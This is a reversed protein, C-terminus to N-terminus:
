VSDACSTGASFDTHSTMWTVAAIMAEPMKVIPNAWDIQKRTCSRRSRTGTSCRCGDKM